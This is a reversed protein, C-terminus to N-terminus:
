RIKHLYGNAYLERQYLPAATDFIEKNASIKSIRKNVSLPINKLIAPPHNSKSHVYIPKDGPKIYPKFIENKLDFTVDLFQVQTLNATSTTSLGNKQFINVIQQRLKETLRPTVSSICLGNDRYLGMELDKLETTVLHLLYLGVLDCSEAGDWAGMSIDFNTEGKKVWPTSGTYLFSKKAQKIM